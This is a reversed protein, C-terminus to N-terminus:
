YKIIFNVAQYPSINNHASDGGTSASVIASGGNTTSWYATYHTPSSSGYYYVASLEHTHSPMEDITITHEEEGGMEGLTRATLGYGTGAGLPSRGRLDPVKFTTANAITMRGSGNDTFSVAAGGQTLSLQLTDTASNIIYYTTDGNLGVPLDEGWLTVTADNQLGHGIGTLTNSTNDATFEDNFRQGIASYLLSYESRQYPYGDCFLWGDPATTGGYSVIGGIPLVSSAELAADIADFIATFFAEDIITGTQGTGDDNIITPRQIQM